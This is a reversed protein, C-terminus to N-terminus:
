HKLKLMRLRDDKKPHYRQRIMLLEWYMRILDVIRVKSGRTHHWQVPVQDIKLGYRKARLLLEVDFSFRAVFPSSFLKEVTAAKFLKFGCQTDPFYLGILRRTALRFLWSMLRRHLPQQTLILSGNSHRSAIIIDHAAMGATFKGLESLPTAYDADMM